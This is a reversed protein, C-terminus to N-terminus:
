WVGLDCQMQRRDRAHNGSVGSAGQAGRGDGRSEQPLVPREFVEHPQDDSVFKGMGICLMLDQTYADEQRLYHLDNTGVVKLGMEGALKCLADNLRPQSIGNDTVIEPGQNQLEIYFDDKGFIDIFTQAWEKAM